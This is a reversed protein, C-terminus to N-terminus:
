NKGGYTALFRDVNTSLLLPLAEKIKDEEWDWWAIDLLASIVDAKYRIKIVSAPNGAVICYPPVDRAVVSGAALVAGSGISLGGRLTAGQGIWVDNHIRIDGYFVPHGPISAAEPWQARFERSNFPYTSVHCVNHGVM